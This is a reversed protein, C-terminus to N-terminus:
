PVFLTIPYMSSRRESGDNISSDTYVYYYSITSDASFIYSKSIIESDEESVKKYLLNYIIYTWSLINSQIWTSIDWWTYWSLTIHHANTIIDENSLSNKQKKEITIPFSSDMLTIIANNNDFKFTRYDWSSLIYPNAKSIVFDQDRPYITLNMSAITYIHIYWPVNRCIIDWLLLNNPKAEKKCNIPQKIKNYDTNQLWINAFIHNQVSHVITNNNTTTDWNEKTIQTNQTCWSALLVVCM